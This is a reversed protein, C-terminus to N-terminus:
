AAPAVPVAVAQVVPAVAVPAPAPVPVVVPAAVPAPPVPSAPVTGGSAATAGYKVGIVAAVPALVALFVIVATKGPVDGIAVLAGMFAATIALLILAPLHKTLTSV